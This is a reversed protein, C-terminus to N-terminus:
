EVITTLLGIPSISILIEDGSKLTFENPPVIGTGTMLYCGQPFSCERYLYDVLETHQRKMQDLTIKGYFVPQKDRKIEMQLTTDAPLPKQSVYLCPGLGACGDYVKAQPLYLPNEGEISRSSMDNGITYGVIKGNSNIYLTLEPEPVNWISDKRIRVKENHGVVRNPTAKFFIEPRDADYVKDYFTGGGSDKSEEMRAVKSRIYTVGAAWIEQTGIPPLLTHQNLIDSVGVPYKNQITVQLFEYLEDRNVLTDWDYYPSDYVIGENEIFIATTTRYIKM